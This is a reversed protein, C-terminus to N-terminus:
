LKQGGRECVDRFDLSSHPEPETPRPGNDRVYRRWEAVRAPPMGPLASDDDKYIARYFEPRDRDRTIPPDADLDVCVGDFECRIERQIKATLVAADGIGVPDGAVCEHRAGMYEILRVAVTWAKDWSAKDM